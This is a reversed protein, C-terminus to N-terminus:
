VYLLNLFSNKALEYDKGQYIVGLITRNHKISLRQQKICLSVYDIVNDYTEKWSKDKDVLFAIGNRSNKIDNDRAVHEGVIGILNSQECFNVFTKEDFGFCFIIDAINVIPFTGYYLVSEINYVKGCVDYISPNEMNNTLVMSTEQDAKDKLDGYDLDEFVFISERMWSPVVETDYWRSSDENLRLSIWIQYGQEIYNAIIKPIDDRIFFKENMITTLGDIM